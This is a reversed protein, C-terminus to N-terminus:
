FNAINKGENDIIPALLVTKIWNFHAFNFLNLAVASSTSTFMFIDCLDVLSSLKWKM